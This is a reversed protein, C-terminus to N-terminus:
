DIPLSRYGRFDSRRRAYEDFTFARVKAGRQMATERTRCTRDGGVAGMLVGQAVVLMVHEVDDGRGGYFAALGPWPQIPQEDGPAKPPANELRQLQAWAMDTWWSFLKPGGCRYMAVALFGWCDVGVADRGGWIYPAGAQNIAESLFRDLRM